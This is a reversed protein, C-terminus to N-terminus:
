LLPSIKEDIYNNIKVKNFYINSFQNLQKNREFNIMQSLQKDKDIKIEKTRKDEIKLILFNNNIKIVNTFEGVKKENLSDYIIKSLNNENVWGIKGGFKASESLSYINATNNFGIEDISKKIKLVM